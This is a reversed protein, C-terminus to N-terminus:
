ETPSSLYATITIAPAGEAVMNLRVFEFEDPFDNSVRMAYEGLPSTRAGGTRLAANGVEIMALNEVVGSFDQKDSGQLVFTYLNTAALTASLVRIVLSMEQRGKGIKFVIDTGSRKIVGSATLAINEGFLTSVDLPYYRKAM